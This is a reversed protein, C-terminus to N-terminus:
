KSEGGDGTAAAFPYLEGTVLKIKEAAALLDVKSSEAQIRAQMLNQEAIAVDLATAMGLKQQLQLIELSKQFYPLADQDAQAKEVALAYNAVAQDLDLKITQKQQEQSIKANELTLRAQEATNKSIGFDFTWSFKLVLQDKQNAFLNNNDQNDNQVVPQVQGAATWNLNGTLFDYSITYNHTRSSNNYGFSVTPLGQNSAQAYVREAKKISIQAQQMELRKKLAEEVLKERNLETLPALDPNEELKVNDVQELGIENGLQLMAIRLDSRSKKLNYDATILDNQAKLQDPKTIKGQQLQIKALDNTAQATKVFTEQLVLMRQAKLASLYFTTTNFVVNAQVIKAQAESSVQDWVSAEINTSIKKGYVNYPTPVTQSIILRFNNPYNNSNGYPNGSGASSNLNDQFSGSVTAQPFIKLIEQKVALRAKELDNGASIAQSDHKLAMEVAQKLTLTDESQAQAFLSLFTLFLVALGMMALHVLSREKFM